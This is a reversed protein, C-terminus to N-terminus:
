SEAIAYLDEEVDLELPKAQIFDCDPCKFLFLRGDITDFIDYIKCDNEEKYQKCLECYFGYCV